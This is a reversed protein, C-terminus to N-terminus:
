FFFFFRLRTKENKIRTKKKKNIKKIYLLNLLIELRSKEFSNMEKNRSRITNYAALISKMKFSFIVRGTNYTIIVYVFQKDVISSLTIVSFFIIRKVNTKVENGINIIM